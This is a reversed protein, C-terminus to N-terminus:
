INLKGSSLKCYKKGSANMACVCSGSDTTTSNDANTYDCDVTCPLDAAVSNVRTRCKNSISDVDGSACLSWKNTNPNSLLSGDPLSFYAVCTNNNCGHTNLCGEDVTCNGGDVAQPACRKDDTGACWLGM